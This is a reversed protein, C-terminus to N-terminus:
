VSTRRRNSPEHERVSISLAASAARWTLMHRDGRWRLPGLPPQWTCLRSALQDSPGCKRRPPQGFAAATARHVGEEQRLPPRTVQHFRRSLTHDPGPLGPRGHRAHARSANHRGRRGNGSPSTLVVSSSAEVELRKEVSSDTAVYRRKWCCIAREEWPSQEGGLNGRGEGDVAPPCRVEWGCALTSSIPVSNREDRRIAIASRAVDRQRNSQM